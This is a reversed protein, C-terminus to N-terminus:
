YQSAETSYKLKFLSAYLIFEIQIFANWSDIFAVKKWFQGEVSFM